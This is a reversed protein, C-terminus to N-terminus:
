KGSRENLRDIEAALISAPGLLLELPPNILKQKTLLLFARGDVEQNALKDLQDNDIGQEKRLYDMLTDIDWNKVAERSVATLPSQAQSGEGKTPTFSVVLIWRLYCYTAIGHLKYIPIFPFKVEVAQEFHMM